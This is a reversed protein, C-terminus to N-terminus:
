LLKTNSFSVLSGRTQKSPPTGAVPPLAMGHGATEQGRPTIYGLHECRYSAYTVTAWPTCDVTPLPESRM